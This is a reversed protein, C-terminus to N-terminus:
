IPFRSQALADKYLISGVIVMYPCAKHICPPPTISPRRAPDVTHQRTCQWSGFVAAFPEVRHRLRNVKGM